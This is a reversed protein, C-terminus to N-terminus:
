DYNTQEKKNPYQMHSFSFLNYDYYNHFLLSSLFVLEINIKNKTCTSMM